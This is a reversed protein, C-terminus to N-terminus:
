QRVYFIFDARPPNSLGVQRGLTILQGRHYTAHNFVHLMIEEASTTKESTGFTYPKNFESAPLALVYENFAKSTELFQNFFEANTGQFDNGPPNGWPQEKLTQLWGYEANWLHVVTKYISNFSSEVEANLQEDTAQALWEAYRENAWLNYAAYAKMIHVAEAEAEKKDEKKDTANVCANTLFLTSLLFLGLYIHKSSM